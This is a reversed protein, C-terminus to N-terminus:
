RRTPTGNRRAEMTLEEGVRIQGEADCVNNVIWRLFVSTVLAIEIETM